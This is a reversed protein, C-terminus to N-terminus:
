RMHEVPGVQVIGANNVLVDVGGYREVVRGVAEDVQQRDGVDCVMALVDRGQSELEEEAEDLEAQNRALIAVRAGEDTFRRALVLGLGRSGGTIVVSRGDFSFNSANKRARAVLAVVAGATIAPLLFPRSNMNTRERASIQDTRCTSKVCGM